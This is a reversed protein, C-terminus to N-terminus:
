YRIVSDGFRRIASARIKGFRRIALRTRAIRRSEALGPRGGDDRQPVCMRGRRRAGAGECRRSYGDMERDTQSHIYAHMCTERERERERHTHTHTRTHTHAHTHRYVRMGVRGGRMGGRGEGGGGGRRAEGRGARVGRTTTRGGRAGGLGGCAADRRAAPRYLADGAQARTRAQILARRPRRRPAAHARACVCVRTRACVCVCLHPLRPAPPPASRQVRAPPNLPSTLM